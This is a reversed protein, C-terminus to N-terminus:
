EPIYDAFVRGSVYEKMKERHAAHLPHNSYAPIDEPREFESYMVIDHPGGAFNEGLEACLLGPIKGVMNQVSARMDAIIQARNEETVKDTLHFMVIHRVM